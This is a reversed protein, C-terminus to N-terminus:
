GVLEAIAAAEDAVVEAFGFALARGAYEIAEAHEAMEAAVADADVDEFDRAWALVTEASAEPHFQLGWACEGVRFAQYPYQASSALWTAGVPLNVVADAHMSPMKALVGGGAPHDAPVDAALRDLLADHAAAPRPVIDIVGAERGPPASVQVTGGNAVALLQAGLCLGLTPLGSRTAEGLLARTAPLWPAVADDYANQLGGLVILGDGCDDLSPVADGAWPRVTVIEPAQPSEALWGAFRDLPVAAVNELVTLRM